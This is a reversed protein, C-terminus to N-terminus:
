FVNRRFRCKARWAFFLGGLVYAMMVKATLLTTPGLRRVKDFWDYTLNGADKRANTRGSAGKIVVGVQTAPNSYICTRAMAENRTVTAILGFVMPAVVWLVFALGFTAVVASTTRRFRASFYVGASTLFVVLEIMIMALHVMAIPHIYGIFTFLMIHGVALFWVVLCRQSVAAAKGLLIRWDDLSTALLIPWARSEKESTISSASLVIHFIIAMLVFLVIYSVHTFDEDLYGEKAWVAYTLLLAGLTVMLGIISNRGEAGRILPARVDKWFVPWGTVRRIVGSTNEPTGSDLAASANPNWRKRSWGGEVHGTAQRLAVKRVCGACLAALVGSAGLMMACHVPWHFRPIGAPLAPSTLLATIYTMAYFPSFHSIVDWYVPVAAGIAGRGLFTRPTLLMHGLMAPVLIFFFGMTVCTKIIVVYAKRNGISFFVSLTGAFVAATLTICLSSIVYDWPVGGFIRTAALLPLSVALLQVLQLLKSCLKGLVIQFGSIPTTMLLGLTRNYIEDSISNSLMVIAILQTAAFQFGVIRTVITKGAEALRSKQFTASVQGGVTSRWTIVVFATLLAVYAFRLIYNRKRRSSVRLEKDFLPGTLRVPDFLKWFSSAATIM